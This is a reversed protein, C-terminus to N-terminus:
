SVLVVHTSVTWIGSVCGGGVEDGEWGGLESIHTGHSTPQWLLCRWFRVICFCCLKLPVVWEVVLRCMILTELGPELLCDRFDPIKKSIERSGPFEWSKNCIIKILWKSLSVLPGLGKVHLICSEWCIYTMYVNICVMIACKISFECRLIFEYINITLKLSIERFM